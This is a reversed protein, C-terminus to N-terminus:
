GGGARVACRHDPGRRRCFRGGMHGQRRKRERSGCPGQREQDALKGSGRCNRNGRDAACDAHGTRAVGAVQQAVACRGHRLRQGDGSQRRGQRRQHVARPRGRRWRRHRQHGAFEQRAKGCEHGAADLACDPGLRRRARSAGHDQAGDARFRANGPRICPHRRVAGHHPYAFAHFGGQFAHPLKVSALGPFPRACLGAMGLGGFPSTGSPYPRNDRSAAAM